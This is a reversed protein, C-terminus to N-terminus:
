KKLNKISLSFEAMKKASKAGSQLYFAILDEFGQIDDRTMKENFVKCDFMSDIIEKAQRQYFTEIQQM